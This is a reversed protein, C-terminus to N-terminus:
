VRERCSARGIKSGPAGLVPAPRAGVTEVPVEVVKTPGASFHTESIRQNWTKDVQTLYLYKATLLVAVATWPGWVWWRFALPRARPTDAPRPPMPALAPSRDVSESVQIPDIARHTSEIKTTSLPIQIPPEVPAPAATVKVIVDPVPTPIPPEPPPAAATPEPLPASWTRLPPAPTPEDIKLQEEPEPLPPEPSPTAAAATPEPAPEDRHGAHFPEGADEIREESRSDSEPEPDPRALEDWNKTPSDDISQPEPQPLPQTDIGRFHATSAEEAWPGCRPLVDWGSEHWEELEPIEVVLEHGHVSWDVAAVADDLVELRERLQELVEDREEGTMRNVDIGALVLIQPATEGTAEDDLSMRVALYDDGEVEEVDDAEDRVRGIYHGAAASDVGRGPPALFRPGHGKAFPTEAILVPSRM